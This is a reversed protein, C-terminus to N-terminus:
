HRDTDEQRNRSVWIQADEGVLPYSALGKFETLKRRPRDSQVSSHGSKAKLNNTLHNTLHLLEDATLQDSQEILNQLLEQSM